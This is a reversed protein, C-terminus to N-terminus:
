SELDKLIKNIDTSNGFVIPAKVNIKPIHIFNGQGNNISVSAPITNNTPTNTNNVLSPVIVETNQRTSILVPERGGYAAMLLETELIEDKDTFRNGLYSLERTLTPLNLLTFVILFATIYILFLKFIGTSTQGSKINFKSRLINIM